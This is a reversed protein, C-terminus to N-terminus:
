EGTQKCIITAAHPKDDYRDWHPRLTVAGGDNECQRAFHRAENWDTTHLSTESGPEIRFCLLIWLAFFAAFMTFIWVLRLGERKTM